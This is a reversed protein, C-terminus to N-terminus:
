GLIEIAHGREGLPHEIRGTVDHQHMPDALGVVREAAVGGRLAEDGEGVPEAPDNVPRPAVAVADVHQLSAAAFRAQARLRAVVLRAAAIQHPLESPTLPIRTLAPDEAEVIAWAEDFLGAGAVRAPAPEALGLRAAWARCLEPQGLRHLLRLAARRRARLMAIRVPELAEDCVLDPQEARRRITTAMGGQARGDLRCSVTVRAALSHRVLGGQRRVVDALARDEGVPLPPLGGIRAYISVPLALSGGSAMRHRPWPDHALPDLRADIETLLWDYRAELRGRAIVAPPLLAHEQRDARVHGAVLHAGAEIGALNAAVWEPDARGDADTTLIAGRGGLLGVAMDMALRRANGAHADPPLLHYEATALPLPLTRAIARVIDATADTCNNLLLAVGFRYPGPRQGALALLCDAILEAENNVPIAVAADLDAWGGHGPTAAEILM